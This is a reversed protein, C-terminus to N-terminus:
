AMLPVQERLSELQDELQRLQGDCQVLLELSQHFVEEDGDLLGYIGDLQGELVEVLQSMLEGGVQSVPAQLNDLLGELRAAESELQPRSAPLQQALGLVKEVPSEEVVVEEELMPAHTQFQALMQLNTM